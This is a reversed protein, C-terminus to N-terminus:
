VCENLKKLNQKMRYPGDPKSRFFINSVREGAIGSKVEKIVVSKLLKKIEKDLMEIETINGPHEFDSNVILQQNNVKVKLGHQMNIM